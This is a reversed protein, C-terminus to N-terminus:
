EERITAQSFDGRVSGHLFWRDRLGCVVRINVFGNERPFPNTFGPSELGRRLDNCELQKLCSFLFPGGQKQVRLVDCSEYFAEWTPLTKHRFVPTAPCRSPVRLTLLSRSNTIGGADAGTESSAV